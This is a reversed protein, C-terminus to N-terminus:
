RVRYEACSAVKYLVIAVRMELTVPACITVDEPKMVGEMMGFQREM